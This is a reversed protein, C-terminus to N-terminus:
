KSGGEGLGVEGVGQVRGMKKKADSKSKKYNKKYFNM